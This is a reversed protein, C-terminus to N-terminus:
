TPDAAIVAQAQKGAKVAAPTKEKWAKLEVLLNNITKQSEGQAAELTQVQKKLAAIEEKQANNSTALAANETQLAKFATDLAKNAADLLEVKADSKDAARMTETLKDSVVQYREQNKQALLYNDKINEKAAESIKADTEARLVAIQANAEALKAIAEANKSNAASVQTIAWLALVLLAAPVGISSVFDLVEPTM